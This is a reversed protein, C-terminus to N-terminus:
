LVPVAPNVFAVYLLKDTGKSAMQIAGPKIFKSFHGIYYYSPMYVLEENFIKIMMPSSCLNNVHNPGGTEDLFLNWDIYGETHNRLDNIMNRGYREGVQYEDFHPGGEQCGETFLLHKEPYLDHLKGVNAFQENEYWLLIPTPWHEPQGELQSSM